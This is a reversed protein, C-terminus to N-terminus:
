DMRDLGLLTEFDENHYDPTIKPGGMPGTSATFKAPGYQFRGVEWLDGSALVAEVQYTLTGYLWIDIKATATGLGHDDWYHVGVSYEKGEEPTHLHLWEWGGTGEQHSTWKPNWHYDEGAVWTPEQNWWFCDWKLDFWPDPSGDLDYDAQNANPHALHLDLDRGGLGDVPTGYEWSLEVHFDPGGGTVLEFTAPDSKIGYADWVTLHFRYVGVVNVEFTPDPYNQSPILVSKSVPPQEVSWEWKTIINAAPISNSGILHIVTQPPVEQGEPCEIVATPRPLEPVTRVQFQIAPTIEFHNQNTWPDVVAAGPLHGPHRLLGPLNYQPLDMDPNRGQDPAVADSTSDHSDDASVDVVSQPSACRVLTVFLVSIYVQRMTHEGQFLELPAM